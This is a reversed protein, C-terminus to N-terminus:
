NGDWGGFGRCENCVCEVDHIDPGYRENRYQNLCASCDPNSEGYEKDCICRNENVMRHYTIKTEKLLSKLTQNDVNANQLDVTTEELKKIASEVARLQKPSHGSKGVCNMGYARCTKCYDQGDRIHALEWDLDEQDEWSLKIGAESESSM